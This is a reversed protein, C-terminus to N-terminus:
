HRQGQWAEVAAIIHQAARALADEARARAGDDVSDDTGDELNDEPGDNLAAWAEDIAPAAAATVGHALLQAYATELAALCQGVAQDGLRAEHLVMVCAAAPAAELLAASRKEDAHAACWRRALARVMDILALMAPMDAHLTPDGRAAAADACAKLAPGVVAHYARPDLAEPDLAGPDLRPPDLNDDPQAM